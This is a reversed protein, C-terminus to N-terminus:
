AAGEAQAAAPQGHVTLVPRDATRVVTEAVSGLMLRRFGRRGHSGVVILDFARGGAYRVIEAGPAGVTWAVDVTFGKAACRARQKDLAFRAANIVDEILEPSPVYMSLSSPTSYAPPECVHLLTVQGANGRALELAADIARESDSSFDTAVLIKKLNM